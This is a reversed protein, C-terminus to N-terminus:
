SSLPLQRLKEEGIIDRQALRTGQITMTMLGPMLSSLLFASKRGQATLALSAVIGAIRVPRRFNKLAQQHYAAADRGANVAEAALFASHLAIAIGDGAFSPIVAMQDGLRFLGPEAPNPHYLYGYPTGYVALPRSWLSEAGALRRKLHSSIASLWALLTQWEKGCVKTYVRRKILLCFNAKGEEVLELGAYGADFLYVEVCEHLARQEPQSLRLHMKFGIFDSQMHERPWGHVDHKGSALFVNQARWHTGGSSSVLWGNNHQVLHNVSAGCHVRVGAQRALTMLVADLCRRSLGWAPFPLISDLQAEGDYVRLRRIPQAGYERLDIGLLRLYHGAEWSIFEGCVKDHAVSTKELLLVERGARALLIALACGAPGGGIVVVKKENLNESM